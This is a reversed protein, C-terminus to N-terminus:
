REAAKYVSVAFILSVKVIDEPLVTSGAAISLATLITPADAANRLRLPQMFHQTIWAKLLFRAFHLPLCIVEGILHHTYASSKNEM